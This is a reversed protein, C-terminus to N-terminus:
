YLIWLTGKKVFAFQNADITGHLAEKIRNPLVKPLIKYPESILSIPRFDHIFSAGSKKPILTLFTSNIGKPDKRKSPIRPFLSINM